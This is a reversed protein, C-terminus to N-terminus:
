EGKKYTPNIIKALIEEATEAATPGKTETTRAANATITQQLTSISQALKELLRATEDAKPEEVPEPDAKPEEAPDPDAKPEPDAAPEATQTMMGRIEDATFGADLMSKVDEFNM